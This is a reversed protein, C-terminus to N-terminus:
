VRKLWATLFREQHPNNECIEIYKKFQLGNLVKLLNNRDQKKKFYKNVIQIEQNTIGDETSVEKYRRGNKNLLNLSQKFLIVATGSGMNVGINFMKEALEQFGIRDLKNIDWFHLKYFHTVEADLEPFKSNYKIKNVSKIKDIVSWGRWKPFSVRSIGSYTEGGRDFPDNVYGGEFKKIQQYAKNFDLIPKQIKPKTEEPPELECSFQPVSAEYTHLPITLLITFIIKKVYKM